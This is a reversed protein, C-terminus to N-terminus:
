CLSDVAGIQKFIRFHSFGFGPLPPFRFFSRFCTTHTHVHGPGLRTENQQDESDGHGRSPGRDAPRGRLLPAATCCRASRLDEVASAHANCLHTHHEAGWMVTAMCTGHSNGIGIGDAGTAM